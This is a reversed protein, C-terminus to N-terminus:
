VLKRKALEDNVQEILQKFEPNTHEGVIVKRNKLREVSIPDNLKAKRDNHMAVLKESFALLDQDSLANINM